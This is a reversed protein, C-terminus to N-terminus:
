VNFDEPKEPAPDLAQIVQLARVQARTYARTAIAWQSLGKSGASEVRNGLNFEEEAKALLCELPKYAPDHQDLETFLSCARDIYVKAKQRASQAVEEPTSALQVEWYANTENFIPSCWTPM